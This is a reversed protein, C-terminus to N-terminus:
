LLCFSEWKLFPSSLSNLLETVSKEEKVSINTKPTEEFNKRQKDNNYNNNQNNHHNHNNYFEQSSFDKKPRNQRQDKRGWGKDEGFKKSNM